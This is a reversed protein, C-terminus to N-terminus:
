KQKLMRAQHELAEMETEAGKDGQEEMWKELKAALKKKIGAYKPDDALNHLQDPDNVRDYLEEGPRRLYRGVLEAARSDSRAMNVWSTWVSDKASTGACSFEAEPTLNRIYVYKDSRISRIGYHDPGNITGRSTQIGYSYDKFHHKGKTLLEKFSYGDVEAPREGGAIDIMTPVVDVYEAMADCTSGPKVVGPWRVIMGTQLGMDYCTWKAFPLSNGQESTFFFVTNDAVGTEELMKMVQGVQNDMYNIEGYYHTLSGRTEPTDVYYEPLILKDPDFQSADGKNWPTHPQHSCIFICFPQDKGAADRIFPAIKSTDVDANEPSLYEYDFVSKPAIHRKGELAVRYGEARLYQVVSKTGPRAFAHNPYAGNRVPYQGTMLCHRIPSSMPAAQFFNTYRVGQSALRDINPTISTGALPGNHITNVGGYCGLDRYTCDDAIMLVINPRSGSKQPTKPTEAIAPTLAATGAPILLPFLILKHRMKHM